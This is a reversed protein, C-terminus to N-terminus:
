WGILIGCSGGDSALLVSPTQRASSPFLTSLNYYKSSTALLQCMDIDTAFTVCTAASNPSQWTTSWFSSYVSTAMVKVLISHLIIMLAISVAPKGEAPDVRVNGLAITWPGQCHPPSLIGLRNMSCVVFCRWVSIFNPLCSVSIVLLRKCADHSAKLNSDPSDPVISSSGSHMYEYM